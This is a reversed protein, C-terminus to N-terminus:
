PTTFGDMKAYINVRKARLKGKKYKGLWSQDGALFVSVDPNVRITLMHRTM